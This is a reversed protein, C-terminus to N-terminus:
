TCTALYSLGENLTAATFERYAATPIGFEAMFKKAYAKSGELQAGEASPGIVQIHQLLPDAQFFDYVGAVLPAEPGVVLLDIKKEICFAKQAVFDNPSLDVNTGCSATGANGPAIFLQECHPSQSIKWAFAHERGGSGLLLINM